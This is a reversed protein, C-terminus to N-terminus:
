ELCVCKHFFCYYRDTCGDCQASRNGAGIVEFIYIDIGIFYVFRIHFTDKRSRYILCDIGHCLEIIVLHAPPCTIGSMESARDIHIFTCRIRKVFFKIDFDDTIKFQAFTLIVTNRAIFVSDSYDPCPFSVNVRDDYRHVSAHGQRIGHNEIRIFEEYFMICFFFHVPLNQIHQFFCGFTKIGICTRINQFFIRYESGARSCGTVDDFPTLKGISKTQFYSHTCGINCGTQCFLVSPFTHFM